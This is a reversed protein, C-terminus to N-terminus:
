RPPKKAQNWFKYFSPFTGTVHPFLWPRADRIGPWHATLPHERSFLRVTDHGKVLSGVTGVFMELQPIQNAWHVVFQWRKPGMPWRQYADPEIVLVRRGSEGYRWQPDLAFPHYLFLNDKPNIPKRFTCSPLTQSYDPDERLALVKPIAANALVGYDEDLFTGSQKTRSYKNLNDQNALYRKKSFSGAVWQWSLSNSALDGDLLHYYLWRAGAQWRTRAINCVVAALWLRSHNHIYGSEKLARIERDLVHIGTAGKVVAAPMRTHHAEPQASTLDNFINDGHYQWVRHFFERWALQFLFQEIAKESRGTRAQHALDSVSIIGHSIFPSLRTVDGDLFNRNRIYADPRIAAVRQMLADYEILTNWTTDVM